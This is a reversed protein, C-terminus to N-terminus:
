LESIDVSKGHRGEDLAGKQLSNKETLKLGSPPLMRASNISERLPNKPINEKGEGELTILYENRQFNFSELVQQSKLSSDILDQMQRMKEQPNCQQFYRSKTEEAEALKDVLWNNDSQMRDSIFLIADIPDILYVKDDNIGLDECYSRFYTEHKEKM